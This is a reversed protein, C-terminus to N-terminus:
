GVKRGPDDIETLIGCGFGASYFGASAGFRIRSAGHLYGSAGGDVFRRSWITSEGVVRFFAFEPPEIRFGKGPFGQGMRSSRPRTVDGCACDRDFVHDCGASCEGSALDNRTVSNWGVGLHHRDGTVGKGKRGLGGLCFGGVCQDYMRFNELYDADILDTFGAGIKVEDGGPCQGPLLLVGIGFGCGFTRWIQVKKVAPGGSEDRGELGPVISDEILSTSARYAVPTRSEAAAGRLRRRVSAM